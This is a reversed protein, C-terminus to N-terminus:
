RACLGLLGRLVEIDHRPLIWDLDSWLDGRTLRLGNPGICVALGEALAQAIIAPHTHRLRRGSKSTIADQKCHRDSSYEPANNNSFDNEGRDASGAGEPGKEHGM